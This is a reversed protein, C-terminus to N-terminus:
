AAAKRTAETILSRVNADTFVDAVLHIRNVGTPNTVSHPKRSDLYYCRFAALHTESHRGDLDWSHLKIEPDTVLPVHFRTIQGDRTGTDRDTIDSHRGLSGGKGGRGDMRLLRVREVRSWWAVSRVWDMLVPMEGALKTWECPRLLDGPHEAKWTKPMEAPKVGKSPDEPYFGRLSLASWSGDSYYPFDDDWGGLLALEAEIEPRIGGPISMPMPTVTALDYDSYRWEPMRPPGWVAIIESAASVRVAIRARGQAALGEALEADEVYANIYDYRDLNPIPAGLTRAITRVVVSGRPIGYSRGTFDTRISDRQLRSAFAVTYHDGDRWETLGEPKALIENATPTAFAGAHYRKAYTQMFSSPNM